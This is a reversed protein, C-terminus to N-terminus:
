RISMLDCAYVCLHQLFMCVDFECIVLELMSICVILVVVCFSGEGIGLSRACVALPVCICAVHEHTSNKRATDLIDSKITADIM